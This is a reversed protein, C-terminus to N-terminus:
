DKGEDEKGDGNRKKARNEQRKAPKKTSWYKKMTALHLPCNAILVRENNPKEMDKSIHNGEMMYLANALVINEVVKKGYKDETDNYLLYGKPSHVLDYYLDPLLEKAEPSLVDNYLPNVADKALDVQEEIMKQFAEDMDAVGSPVSKFAKLCRNVDGGFTKILMKRWGAQDVGLDTLFRDMEENSFFGLIKTLYLRNGMSYPTFWADYVKMTSKMWVLLSSHATGLVVKCRKDRKTAAVLVRLLSRLADASKEDGPHIIDRTVNFEDLILWFPAGRKHGYEDAYLNILTDLKKIPDPIKLLLDLLNKGLGLNDFRVAGYHSVLDRVTAKGVESTRGAFTKISDGITQLFGNMDRIAERRLDIYIYPAKTEAKTTAESALKGQRQLFEKLLWTKGCDRPGLLVMIDEGGEMQLQEKLFDLEHNRNFFELRKKFHAPRYVFARTPGKTAINIASSLATAIKKIM